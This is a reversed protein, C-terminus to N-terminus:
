GHAAPHPHEFFFRLMEATADPGRPDTYSGAHTGGQWAHGAGHVLWQEIVPTGDGQVHLTRSFRHGGQTEGTDTQTVLNLGGASQAAVSDANRANVTHDRDGHFIITPVPHASNSARGAATGGQRMATMASSIDRAAGCALGSHVGIAAYLEPYAQGMISAAAGGASLGAVYVRAPDVAYDAMIQRTIGAILSPEGADRAQDAPSFWNWCKQMNAATTQGPYAVLFGQTEAAANMGTGAAFDDPSQTCGHLMIVLPMTKGRYQSPVYLKYPRTGAGNTFSHASFSGGANQATRGHQSFAHAQSTFDPAAGGAHDFAKRLMDGLASVVPPLESAAAQARRSTRKHKPAPEAVGDIIPAAKLRPHAHPPKSKGSLARQIVDTADLLRGSKTLKTARLIDSLIQHKM